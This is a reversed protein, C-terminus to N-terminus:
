FGATDSEEFLGIVNDETDKCYAAYGVGPITHPKAIISGGANEVNRMADKISEVAVLMTIHQWDAERLFINGDIGRDEPDGTSATWYELAGHAKRIQWGFARKYFTIARDTNDASIDFHIVRGM